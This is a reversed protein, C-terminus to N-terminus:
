VMVDALHQLFSSHCISLIFKTKESRTQNKNQMVCVCICVCVVVMVVQLIVAIAEEAFSCICNAILPLIAIMVSLM